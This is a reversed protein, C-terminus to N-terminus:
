LATYWGPSVLQVAKKERLQSLLDSLRSKSMDPFADRLEAVKIGTKKKCAKVSQYVAQEQPTLDFKYKPM